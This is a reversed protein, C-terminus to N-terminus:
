SKRRALEAKEMEHQEVIEIEETQSSTQQVDTKPPEAVRLRQQSRAPINAPEQTEIKNVRQEIPLSLDLIAIHQDVNELEIVSKKQRTALENDCAFVEFVQKYDATYGELKQAYQLAMAGIMKSQEVKKPDISQSYEIQLKKLKFIHKSLEYCSEIELPIQKVNEELIEPILKNAKQKHYVFYSIAMALYGIDVIAPNEKTFVCYMHLVFATVLMAFNIKVYPYHEDSSIDKLGEIELFQQFTKDSVLSDVFQLELNNSALILSQYTQERDETGNSKYAEAYDIDKAKSDLNVMLKSIREKVARRLLYVQFLERFHPTAKDITSKILAEPRLDNIKDKLEPHEDLFKIADEIVDEPLGALEPSRGFDRLDNSQEKNNVTQSLIPPYELSSGM